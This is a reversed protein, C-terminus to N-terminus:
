SGSVVGSPLLAGLQEAAAKQMGPVTHSYTDLTIQISSHGLMEQVIKPHVGAGLMLTACSHRLDHFRVDLGAKKVIRGFNHSLVSPDIPQGADDGFVFDDLSLVRGIILYLSEREARYERLYNALQPTMAVQRRSNESKPEMLEVKGNGKYLSHNVSITMGLIDIDRWQLALLENRRIGTSIATYIVPYYYSDYAVELLESVEAPDLTRGIYRKAKPPDVHDRSAPNTSLYGQRVGWRLAQSLVRHMRLVTRCKLNQHNRENVKQLSLGYFRQIIAPRLDKLKVHGLAPTIHRNIIGKYGLYTRESCNTLVYTDLWEYLLEKVKQKSAPLIGRDVKALMARLERQADAKSGSVSKYQREPQGAETKRSTYITILWKRGSRRINGSGRRARSKRNM